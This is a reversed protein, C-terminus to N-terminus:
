SVKESPFMYNGNNSPGGEVMTDPNSSAGRMDHPPPNYYAM